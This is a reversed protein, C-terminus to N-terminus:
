TAAAEPWGGLCTAPPPLGWSSDVIAVGVCVCLVVAAAALAARLCGSLPIAPLEARGDSRTQTQLRESDQELAVLCKDEETVDDLAPVLAM